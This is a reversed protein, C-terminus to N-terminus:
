QRGYPPRVPHEHRYGSHSEGSKSAINEDWSVRRVFKFKGLAERLTLVGVFGDVWYELYYYYVILRRNQPPTSKRFGNIHSVLGSESAINEDWSVRRKFKFKTLAAQVDGTLTTWKSRDM